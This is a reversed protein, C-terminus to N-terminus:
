GLNKSRLDVTFYFCNCFSFPEVLQLLLREGLINEYITMLLSGILLQLRDERLVNLEDFGVVNDKRLQSEEGMEEDLEKERASRLADAYERLKESTKKVECGLLEITDMDVNFETCFKQQSEENNKNLLEMMSEYYGHAEPPLIQKSSKVKVARLNIKLKKLKTTDVGGTM